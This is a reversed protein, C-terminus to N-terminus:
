SAQTLLSEERHSPRRRYSEGENYSRSLAQLDFPQFEDSEPVPEEKHRGILTFIVAEMDKKILIEKEIPM